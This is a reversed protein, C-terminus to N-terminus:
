EEDADEHVNSAPLVDVTKWRELIWTELKNRRETLTDKTWDDYAAIDREQKIHSNCYCIGSGIKGKKRAFEFNSYNANDRTLVLNGIDHLYCKIEEPKWAKLWHSNEKPTQPLIHEITSDKALEAWSIRPQQGKCESNLLYKEYEFLTYKLTHRRSYWSSPTQVQKIFKEEPLYYRALSHISNIINEAANKNGFVEKGWRYFSSKGSNSRKGEILFVRFAYCELTKLLNLYTDNSINEKERQIRAATMLPLFNAINGTHHIRTLWELENQCMTNKQSPTIIVSYHKSIQALGDTFTILFDKVEERTKLSFDRLPIYQKAKFGDYGNWNKPLHHCYLIWAIRLCQEDNGTSKGINSYTDSWATNITKTLSDKEESTGNRSIWYMLYNKLLELVSLRKGRSNMLEFTMGLECEEEITYYTFVLKGTIATFIQKLYEIGRDNDELQKQIHETFKKFALLLRKQHPTTVESRPTGNKLLHYFLDETSNNLTLRCTRDHFLFDPTDKEYESEGNAVLARIIVSLYLCVSTLRQQGDVIDLVEVTKRDYIQQQFDKPSYTVVTGTYHSKVSEDTVLADIDDILDQWQKKEWAYGRQYDPIRFIKGSFLKALTQKEM